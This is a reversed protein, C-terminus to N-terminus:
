STGQTLFKLTIGSTPGEALGMAIGSSLRAKHEADHEIHNSNYNVVRCEHGCQLPSELHALSDLAFDM